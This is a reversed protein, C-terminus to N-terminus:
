QAYELPNTVTGLLSSITKYVCCIFAWLGWPGEAVLGQREATSVFIGSDIVLIGDVNPTSALHSVVTEKQKWGTYGVAFLPIRTTPTNGMVSGGFRAMDRRVKALQTATSVVEGWQSTLNSKVEIVAAVGEALFLKTKGAAPISPSFPYEIVVDLQGSREGSADTADGTGFRYPSPFAQSLFSDIFAEREEGRSSPSMGVAATTGGAQHVGNLISQVGALRQFIHKNPM